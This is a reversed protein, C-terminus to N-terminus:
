NNHPSSYNYGRLEMLLYYIAVFFGLFGLIWESYRIKTSPEGATFYIFGDETAEIWTLLIVLIYSILAMLGLIRVIRIMISYNFTMDYEKELPNNQM